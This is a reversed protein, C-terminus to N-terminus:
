GNILGLGKLIPFMLACLILLISPILVCAYILFMLASEVFCLILMFIELVIKFM